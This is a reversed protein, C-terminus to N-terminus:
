FFEVPAALELDLFSYGFSRVESEYENIIKMRLYRHIRRELDKRWLSFYKKNVHPYVTKKIPFSKIDLFDYTKAMWLGPDAVFDEYKIISVRNLFYQDERFIQHCIIWHEIIRNLRRWDIRFKRYWAQTAYSVAIPHRILVLFYSNPFMAQLFRTRILNPPSKELLYQKNLDWYQGWEKFLQSRNKESVMPSTNTLHAEPSFGFKGAGGYVGSPKFISQLHM